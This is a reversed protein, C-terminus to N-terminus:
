GPRDTLPLEAIQRTERDFWAIRSGFSWATRSMARGMSIATAPRMSPTAAALVGVGVDAIWSARSSEPASLDASTQLSVPRALHQAVQRAIQVLRAPDVHDRTLLLFGDEALRGMEVDGPVTRRLRTACVFLAHNVAGRGHLQELAYFNGISIVIVGVPRSAGGARNFVAGVMQGTEAHSRMRTVPDYSPGHAMVEKLEILYSYREWLAASIVTLYAMGALASLAHLPWGEVEGLAITSLGAIALLMFVVGTVAMWALRDGRRAGRICVLLAVIAVTLALASSLALAPRPPLLWGVLVVLGSVALTGSRIRLGRDPRRTVGMLALLMLGLLASCAAAILALLRAELDRDAIPLWGLYSVVFLASLAATSAARLAVRHLSRIYALLSGVLMLGVSGFFAGWFGVAVTNM